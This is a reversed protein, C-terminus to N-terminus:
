KGHNYASFDFDYGMIYLTPCKDKRFGFVRAQDKFSKFRFIFIKEDPSLQIDKPKVHSFESFSFAECGETEHPLSFLEKWSKSTIEQLKDILSEKVALRDYKQKNTLYNLNYDKNTTLHKFSIAPYQDCKGGRNKQVSSESIGIRAKQTKLKKSM